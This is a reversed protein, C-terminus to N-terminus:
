KLIPIQDRTIVYDYSFFKNWWTAGNHSDSETYDGNWPMFWSWTDGYEKM